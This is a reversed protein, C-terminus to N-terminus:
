HVKLILGASFELQWVVDANFGFFCIGPSCGVVRADAYVFTASLQGNLRVGVKSTPFLKVGGGGGLTFRVESDGDGAYRTLGLMGTAFPRVRGDAYEQLGGGQWHDVSIRWRIPPGFPGAPVTLHADQHTFLAEIQLGNGLPIDVIAGVAPAGDADVPQGTVLEFFDGGFRYGGFPTVEIGQAWVSSGHGLCAILLIVGIQSSRRVTM